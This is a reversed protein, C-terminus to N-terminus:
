GGMAAAMAGGTMKRRRPARGGSAFGEYNARAHSIDTDDIFKGPKAGRYATRARNFEEQQAPTLENFSRSAIADLAKSYRQHAAPGQDSAEWADDLDDNGTRYNGTRGGGARAVRGGRAFGLAKSGSTAGIFSALPSASYGGTGPAYAQGVTQTNTNVPLGRIINSAFGLNQYPWQQQAYFNNLAANINGQNVIDQGQGAAAVQGIDGAGLQQNLAGLQGFQAGATQKAGQQSIATNLAGQYGQGLAGAISDNLAKQSQGVIQSTIQGEQPSRSQGSSVFRDQIGPLVNEYLNKNSQSTLGGIVQDLYPDMYRGIDAGTIPQAAQGTLTEAQTLDPQFSGVNGGAM